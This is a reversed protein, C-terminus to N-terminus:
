QHQTKKDYRRVIWLARHAENLILVRQDVRQDFQPKQLIAYLKEIVQERFSEEHTEYVLQPLLAIIARQIEHDVRRDTALQLLTWCQAVELTALLRKLADLMNLCEAPEIGESEYKELWQLLMPSVSRDGLKGRATVISRYVRPEEREDIHLRSLPAIYRKDDLSGILNAIAARVFSNMQENSLLKMLKDIISPSTDNAAELAAIISVRVEWTIQRNDLLALFKPVLAPLRLTGLAIVISRPVDINVISLEGPSFRADSLLAFVEDLYQLEGLKALAINSHWCVQTDPKKRIDLLGAIASRKGATGLTDIIACRLDKDLHMNSALTILKPVNTDDLLNGLAVAISIRVDLNIFSNSLIDIMTSVMSASGSISLTQAMRMRVEIDISEESLVHVLIQTIDAHQFVGSAQVLSLQVAPTTEIEGSLMAIIRDKVKEYTQNGYPSKHQGYYRQDAASGMNEDAIETLAEALQRRTLQYLTSTLEEFLRDVIKYRLEHNSMSPNSALCQGALILNTHFSDDPTYSRPHTYGGKKWLEGLLSSADPISGAYLLIVEEWWPDELHQLLKDYKEHTEKAALATFYEQITLHLFSYWGTAQEKLLGNELTIADLIKRKVTTERNLDRLHQEIVDLLEDESFYCKGKCHFYWAIKKLLKEKDERDFQIYRIPDSQASQRSIDNDWELLTNICAQYLDARRDPLLTGKKQAIIILALLLPKSALAQIRPRQLQAKLNSPPDQDQTTQEDAPTSSSKRPPHAFWNNVFQEIDQARFDLVELEDFDHLPLPIRQQYGATRATIVIFANNYTEALQRIIDVTREYTLEASKADDGIITEDLGDLLVLANGGELNKQMYSLAEQKPFRYRNDWEAAAFALLPNSCTQIDQDQDVTADKFQDSQVFLHLNIHIPINSLGVLEKNACRLALYKLLTTKGAGPDGLIVCRKYHAIADAPDIAEHSRRELWERDARLLLNPDRTEEARLRTSGISEPRTQQHLRLRVYVQILNLQWTMTLIQLETMKPDTLLGRRYTDAYEDIQHVRQVEALIAEDEPSNPTAQLSQSQRFPFKTQAKAEKRQKVPQVSMESIADVVIGKQLPPLAKKQEAQDTSTRFMYRYLFLATLASILAIVVGLFSILPAIDITALTAPTVLTALLNEITLIM